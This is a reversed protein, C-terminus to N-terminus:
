GEGGPWCNACLHLPMYSPEADCKECGEWLQGERQPLRATAAKLRAVYTPRNKAWWTAGCPPTQAAYTSFFEIGDALAVIESDTFDDANIRKEIIENITKM